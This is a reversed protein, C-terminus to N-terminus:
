IDDQEKPNEERMFRPKKKHPNTREKKNISEGEETPPVCEERVEKWWCMNECTELWLVFQSEQTKILLLFM